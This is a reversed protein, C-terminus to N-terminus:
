QFSNSSHGILAAYGAKGQKEGNDIVGKRKVKLYKMIKAVSASTAQAKRFIYIEEVAESELEKEFRAVDDVEEDYPEVLIAFRNISWAKVAFGDPKVYEKGYGIVDNKNISGAKEAYGVPKVGKSGSENVDKKIEYVVELTKMHEKRVLEGVGNKDNKTKLIWVKAIPNSAKM